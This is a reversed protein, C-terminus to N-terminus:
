QRGDCRGGVPEAGEASDVLLAVAAHPRNDLLVVPPEASTRTDVVEGVLLTHDLAPITRRLRCVVIASAEALVPVDSCFGYPVGRFRQAPDGTAFQRILHRQRCSLVNVAFSGAALLERLTRGDSCLSVLMTPPDVSLSMVATTTCGTPGDRGCTTTVSVCTAFASMTRRFRRDDVAPALEITRPRAALDTM